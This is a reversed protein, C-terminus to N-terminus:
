LSGGHIKGRGERELFSLNENFLGELRTRERIGIRNEGSDIPRFLLTRLGPFSDKGDPPSLLFVRTEDKGRGPLFELAAAGPLAIVYLFESDPLRPPLQDPSVGALAKLLVDPNEPDFTLPTRGSILVRVLTKSEHFRRILSLLGDVLRDTLLSSAKMAAVPASDALLCLLAEGSPPPTEEGIRLFMEGTAAYLKWNIRRADDGPYYKRVDLLEDTRLRSLEDSAKEGGRIVEEREREPGGPQPYVYILVSDGRYVPLSVIGFLDELYLSGAAGAYVGRQVSAFLLETLKGKGASSTSAELRRKGEKWRLDTKWVTRFGPFLFPVPIDLSVAFSEGANVSLPFPCDPPNKRLSRRLFLYQFFYLILLLVFLFSFSAGWIM